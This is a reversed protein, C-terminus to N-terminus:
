AAKNTIYSTTEDPQETQFKDILVRLNDAMTHLYGAASTVENIRHIQEEIVARVHHASELVTNTSSNMEETCASANEAQDRVDTTQAIIEKMAHTTENAFQTMRNVEDSVSHISDVIKHLIEEAERSQSVGDTVKKQSNEMAHVAERVESQIAEIIRDIEGTAHFSQDALKRVEGAVVAFGRGHEGARAAEIAANLALLNTKEAINGITEIIVSIEGSSSGLHRITNAASIVESEIDAMIQISQKVATDGTEAMNVANQVIDAAQKASQTVHEVATESCRAVEDAAIAADSQKTSTQALHNSIENSAAMAQTVETMESHVQAVIERSRGASENLSISTSAVSHANEMIQNILDRLGKVMNQFAIGMTDKSSRPEVHVTLDGAAISEAIYVMYNRYATVNRLAAAVQGVEDNTYIELDQDADGLSLATSAKVIRVLPATIKKSIAYVILVVLLIGIFGASIALEESKRLPALIDAERVNLVVKWGTDPATTWFLWRREKNIVVVKNGEPNQSIYKGEPIDNISSGKSTKSMLLRTDPHAIIKGSRSIMFTYDSSASDLLHDDMIISRLGDIYIDVGAVGLFKGNKEYVPETVSVMSVNSGGDDYYPECIHMKGTLKAQHYWEQDPSHYDYTLDPAEVPMSKRDVGPCGDGHIGTKDEFAFYDGYILRRPTKELLSNYFEIDHHDRYHGLYQQRVAIATTILSAQQIFNDIDVATNHVQLSAKLHTSKILENQYQLNHVSASLVFVISTSIAVYVCLRQAISRPLLHSYWSPKTEKIM